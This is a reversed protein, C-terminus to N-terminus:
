IEHMSVINGEIVPPEARPTANEALDYSSRKLKVDIAATNPIEEIKYGYIWVRRIFPSLVFPISQFTSLAERYVALIYVVLGIQSM